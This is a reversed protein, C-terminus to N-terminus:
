RALATGVEGRAWADTEVGLREELAERIRGRLEPVAGAGSAIRGLAWAAHGRVLPEPGDLADVLVPMAEEAGWNGLAVAVNRLFGARKARRIARGRSFRDWADEDMRMLEVLSPATTDPAGTGPRKEAGPGGVPYDKYDKESTIQM